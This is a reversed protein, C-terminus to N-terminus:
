SGIDSCFCPLVENLDVVRVINYHPDSWFFTLYALLAWSIKGSVSVSLHMITYAFM